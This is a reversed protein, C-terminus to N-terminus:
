LQLSLLHVQPNVSYHRAGPKSFHRCYRNGPSIPFVRCSPWTLKGGETTGKSVWNTQIKVRFSRFLANSIDAFCKIHLKGHPHLKPFKLQLDSDISEMLWTLGKSIRSDVHQGEAPKAQCSSVQFRNGEFELQSM